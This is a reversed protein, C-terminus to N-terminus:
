QGGEVLEVTTKKFSAGKDILADRIHDPHRTVYLRTGPLPAYYMDGYHAFREAVFSAPDNQFARLYKYVAWPTRLPPPGPPTLLTSM